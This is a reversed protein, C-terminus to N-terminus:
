RLLFLEFRMFSQFIITSRVPQIIPPSPTKTSLPCYPAFHTYFPVLEMYSSITIFYYVSQVSSMRFQYWVELVGRRSYQFAICDLCVSIVDLVGSWLICGFGGGGEEGFRCCVFACAM